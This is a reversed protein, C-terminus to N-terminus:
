SIEYRDRGNEKAKYLANDARQQISEEDDGEIYITLGFSVTLSEIPKFSTNAIKNQLKKVLMVLEDITSEVTVIVFEEGGWRAIFDDERLANSVCESLKVLVLDGVHHGYNDNIAKFRDIDFMIYGFKYGYRVASKFKVRLNKELEYRNYLKTLKDHTSIYELDKKDTIDERYAAYGTKNGREDFIPDITLKIWYDSGDKKRNKVEGQFQKNSNIVSWMDKFFDSNMDKHKFIKHNKGLVEKSSYGTFKEFAKSVYTINGNLDSTTYLVSNSILENLRKMENHQKNIQALLHGIYNNFIIYIIVISILYLIIGKIMLSSLQNKFFTVDKFLLVKGIENKFGDYFPRSIVSYTKNNISVSYNKEDIKLQSLIDIIFDDKEFCYKCLTYNGVKFSSNKDLTLSNNKVFVYGKAGFVREIKDLILTPRMGIEFFGILRNENYIPTVHRYYLGSKGVEYFGSEKPSLVNDRIHPRYKTLDDGFINKEHMRLISVGNADHISMIHFQPLQEKLLTYESELISILKDRNKQEVLDLFNGKNLSLILMNSRENLSNKIMKNSAEELLNDISTEVLENIQEFAVKTHRYSQYFFLFFTLSFVTLIAALVRTKNSIIKM